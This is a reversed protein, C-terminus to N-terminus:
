ARERRGALWLYSLLLAANLLAVALRVGTDIVLQRFFGELLGAILFLGCAGLVLSAAQRGAVKLGHLRGYTGPSVVAQALLLGAGGCLCVATLEPIGHPLVWAWFELALGRSAYLGAIAGLALGNIFLLLLTPLGLAFGLAFALLGIKANHTFLFTAFLGLTAKGEEPGSQLIHRLEETSTAPSRGQAMDEPVISAFDDPDDLLWGTLTGALLLFFAVGITVASRRVGAPFDLRLFRWTTGLTRPKVGYVCFYARSVLSHLYDLLNRDLSIARAVSLSSVAARYLGPLRHIEASSLSRLGGKEVRSVLEELELWLAERERRFDVSRLRPTRTSASAEM